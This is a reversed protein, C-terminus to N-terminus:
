KKSRGRIVGFCWVLKMSELLPYMKSVFDGEKTIKELLSLAIMTIKQHTNSDIEERIKFIEEAVKSEEDSFGALRPDKKTEESLISM